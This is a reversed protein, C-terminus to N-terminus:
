HLIVAKKIRASNNTKVQVFYVGSPYGDGWTVVGTKACSELLDVKRGSADFITASLGEPLDRYELIVRSGVSTTINWNMDPAPEEAISLFGLSDTKLLWLDSSGGVGYSTTYGTVIYGTDEAQLVCRGLDYGDGGYIRIWLTDGKDDTKLLWLKRGTEQLYATPNQTAGTVIFGDNLEQVSYGVGGYPSNYIKTWLSDGNANTKLLLLGNLYGSIIYGGDRTQRVCHGTNLEGMEGSGFQRSWQVNGDTDTKVLWLYRTAFEESEIGTLGTIIYGNDGTVQIFLGANVNHGPEAHTRTWLTNGQANTKILVLSGDYEYGNDGGIVIYGSDATEQVCYSKIGFDRTWLTDGQTDTKVLSPTWAAIVYGGEMTEEIWRAYTPNVFGYAKQWRIIGSTDVKLLWLSDDKLGSIIYNSDTTIQVCFGTETGPGGYTKWWGAHTPTVLAVTLVALLILNAVPKGKTM